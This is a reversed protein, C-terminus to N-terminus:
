LLAGARNVARFGTGTIHREGYLLRLISLNNRNEICSFDMHAMWYLPMLMIGLSASVRVM